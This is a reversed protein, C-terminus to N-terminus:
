AASASAIYTPLQPAHFASTVPDLPSFYLLLDTLETDQTNREQAASLGSTIKLVPSGVKRQHM